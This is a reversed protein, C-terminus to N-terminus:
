AIGSRPRVHLATVDGTGAHEATWSPRVAGSGHPLWASLARSSMPRAIHYGQMRDCGLGALADYTAQDEVGEAIVQLDLGHALDITSRVIVASMPNSRMTRVFSKDIKIEDPHLEALYSLSSYGTGFDDIAIRTGQDRLRALVSMARTPDAAISSETVEVTLQVPDVGAGELAAALWHPLEPDALLRPSLNIAMTTAATPHGAAGIAAFVALSSELSLRTLETMLGSSEAMPIFVEPSVAGHVPHNWRMLAEFGALEGTMAMVQPQFVMELENREAATHLDGYLSLREVSHTDLDHRYSQVQGRNTKARYMAIDARKLLIHVSNGHDPYLAVGISAHVSLQIGESTLPEQLRRMVGEALATARGVSDAGPVVIAFEDGGLRAVTVGDPLAAVMRRAVQCLLEDGIHHGLTDNVEKFHDLDVLMLAFRGDGGVASQLAQEAKITFLTRNPLGTLSDHLSEHQRQAAIHANRQVGLLPLVILLVLLPEITTLLATIPALGLLISSDLGQVRLDERLVEHLREGTVLSLVVGVIVLNLLFYTAAALVAPVLAVDRHAPHLDLIGGGAGLWYVAKVATLTLVYQGANFVVVLPPRRRRVDDVATAVLQALLALLLPGTLVLAVAFTASVTLRDTDGDRRVVRMRRLEGVFLLATLLYSARLDPSTWPIRPLQVLCVGALLVAGTLAVTGAYLRVAPTTAPDATSSPPGPVTAESVDVV